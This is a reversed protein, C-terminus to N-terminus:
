HTCKSVSTKTPSAVKVQGQGNLKNRRQYKKWDADLLSLTDEEIIDAKKLAFLLSRVTIPAAKFPMKKNCCSCKMIPDKINKKQRLTERKKTMASCLTIVEEWEMDSRWKTKLTKLMEPFWVKYADGAAM